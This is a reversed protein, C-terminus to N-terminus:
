FRYTVQLYGGRAVAATKFRSLLEQAFEFRESEILNQGVAAIQLRKTPNWALRLDLDIYPDVDFAPLADVYRGWIDFQLNALLDMSSRISVTHVPDQNEFFEPVHGPENELEMKLFSYTAVLRWWDTARWDATLEAGYTHGDGGNRLPLQIEFHPFPAAAFEPFGPAFTFLDEYDNFFGALDFILNERARLRYGLEYAMLKQEGLPDNSHPDLVFFAPVVGGPTPIPIPNINGVQFSGDAATSTADKWGRGPVQVARSVAGWLTQRDTPTWALRGSPQAEWETSENHEFKSGLTFKLRDPVITIEDQVFTSFVQWHGSFPIAGGTPGPRASDPQYRYGMGYMLNQGLPLPFRHKFEVDYIQQSTDALFVERDVSDFYAQFELDSEDSFTHTFNFLINGGEAPIDNPVFPFEGFQLYTEEGPMREFSTSEASFYEGQLTFHNEETPHWDARFGGQIFDSDLVEEPYNEQHHATVYGRVFLNTAPELGYRVGFFAREDTGGGGTVYLGQTDRADKTIINVVGNVANAGWLASGPGRIVEIRDLDAFLYDQIDWFVGSFLMNYVTRGDRLVLLKDAYLAHFGRISVGWTHVDIRSAQVGPALRLAEPFSRAGSREIDTDTIVSVAASSKFWEEPRRSVSTVEKHLLDELSLESLVQLRDPSESLEAGHSLILLSANSVLFILWLFRGPFPPILRQRM